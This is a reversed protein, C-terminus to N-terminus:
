ASKILAELENITEKLEECSWQALPKKEGKEKLCNLKLCLEQCRLAVSLADQEMAKKYIANVKKIIKEKLINDM